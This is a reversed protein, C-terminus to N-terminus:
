KKFKINYESLCIDKIDKTKIKNCIEKYNDKTAIKKMKNYICVDIRLEKTETETKNLKNCDEYKTIKSMDDFKSEISSICISKIEENKIQNCKKKDDINQSNKFIQNYLVVEKEDINWNNIVEKKNDPLFNVLIFISLLIISIVFVLIKYNKKM